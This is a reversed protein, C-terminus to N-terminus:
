QVLRSRGSLIGLMQGQLAATWYDGLATLKAKSDGDRGVRASQYSLLPQVPAEGAAAAVGLIDRARGEALDLMAGLAQENKVGTLKGTKDFQADLSYYKAVLLSSYVYSNLGGGLTAYLSPTQQRSRKDMIKMARASSGALLYLPEGYAFYGKVVDPHWGRGQAAGDLVVTDFYNLNAEAARRFLEALRLVADRSPPPANGGSGLGLDLADRSVELMHGATVYMLTGAILKFYTEDSRIDERGALSDGWETLGMALSLHGHASALVVVEGLTAPTQREIQELLADIKMSPKLSRLRTGATTVDGDAYAHLVRAWQVAVAGGANAAVMQQYAAGIQGQQEAATAKDAAKDAEALM